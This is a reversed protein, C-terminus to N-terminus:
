RRDCSSRPAVTVSTAWTVVVRPRKSGSTILLSPRRKSSQWTCPAWFGNGSVGLCHSERAQNGEDQKRCGRQAGLRGCLWDRLVSVVDPARRRAGSNRGIAAPYRVRIGRHCPVAIQHQPARLAGRLPPDRTAPCAPRGGRGRRTAVEVQRRGRQASVA